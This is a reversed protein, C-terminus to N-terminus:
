FSGLYIVFEKTNVVAESVEVTGTQMYQKQGKVLAEIKAQFVNSITKGSTNLLNTYGVANGVKKFAVEKKVIEDYRLQFAALQSIIIQDRESDYAEKMLSITDNAKESIEEYELFTLKM